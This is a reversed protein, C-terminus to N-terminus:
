YSRKQFFFDLDQSLSQTLTRSTSQTCSHHSSVLVVINLTSCSTNPIVVPLLGGHSLSVHHHFSLTCSTIFALLTAFLIHSIDRLCYSLSLYLCAFVASFFATAVVLASAIFSNYLSKSVGSPSLFINRIAFARLLAVLSKDWIFCIFFSCPTTKLSRSIIM